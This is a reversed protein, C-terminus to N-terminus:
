MTEPFIGHLNLLRLNYLRKNKPLRSYPRIFNEFDEKKFDRFCARFFDQFDKESQDLSAYYQRWEEANKPAIEIIAKQCENM